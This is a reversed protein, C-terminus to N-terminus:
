TSYSELPHSSVHAIDPQGPSGSVQGAERLSCSRSLPPGCPPPPLRRSKDPRERSSLYRAMLSNQFAQEKRADKCAREPHNFWSPPSPCLAEEYSEVPLQHFDRDYMSKGTKGHKKSPPAASLTKNLLVKSRAARIDHDSRHSKASQTRRPPLEEYNAMAASVGRSAHVRTALANEKKLRRSAQTIARRPPPQFGSLNTTETPDVHKAELQRVSRGLDDSSANSSDSQAVVGLTHPTGYMRRGAIVRDQELFRGFLTDGCGRRLEKGACGHIVDQWEHGKICCEDPAYHNFAITDVITETQPANSFVRKGIRRTDDFQPQFRNKASTVARNQLGACSELNAFWAEREEAQEENSGGNSNNNVTGYDASPELNAAGNCTKRGLRKGAFKKDGKQVATFRDNQGILKGPAGAAGELVQFWDQDETVKQEYPDPDNPGRCQMLDDVATQAQPANPYLRKGRGLSQHARREIDDSFDGFAGDYRRRYEDHAAASMGVVEPDPEDGFAEYKITSTEAPGGEIRTKGRGLAQAARKEIECSLGGFAGDYRRKYEDQAAASVGASEPLQKDGFAEYKITSTKAPGGEVRTKGKKYADAPNKMNYRAHHGIKGWAHAGACGDLHAVHPEMGGSGDIDCGFVVTDVVTMTMPVGVFKRVGANGFVQEKIKEGSRIGAERGAGKRDSRRARASHAKAEEKGEGKRDSGRARASHTKVKQSSLPREPRDDRGGMPQFRPVCRRHVAKDATTQDAQAL